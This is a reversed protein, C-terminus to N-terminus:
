QSSLGKGTLKAFVDALTPRSTAIAALRGPPFLEAIRPVLEHGRPAEVVVDGDVVRGALALRATITARLEDPREGRVRVVDGAVHARLEDPTGTAAVRGGDLIAIRHCREAEEPQHTTVIVSTPRADGGAGRDRGLDPAAGRPRRRARARRAAAADARAAARARDRDPPAHRGFVEVRARRRPRRAGDAGAGRRHARTAIARPVDYLAAGLRLNERATLKLDLSPRRSCSAWARGTPPTPPRSRGATSRWRGPTRRCCAPWCASRPPRAPATPASCASCSAPRSTSASATSRPARRRLPALPRRRAPSPPRGGSRRVRGGREHSPGSRTPLRRAKSAAYWRPLTPFGKLTGDVALAIFLLTLYVISYLFLSRAWRNEAARRFGAAAWGIFVAGLLTACLAYRPGAVRLPELVITVAVLVVSFVVMTVRTTRVSVTLPLVKFGARAYDAGRYTAIALFHPIQWLFLVAFLALGPADLRGTVATWGMLPPLAGPVAGVFLAAGSVRKLPTYVAVYGSVALLGLLGTLLNSGLFM